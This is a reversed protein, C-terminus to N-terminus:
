RIAWGTKLDFFQLHETAIAVEAADGLRVPAHADFRATVVALDPAADPSAEPDLTWAEDLEVQVLQEAGLLEAALAVLEGEPLLTHGEEAAQGLAHLVGAQLREPADAAIGVAQAIKDATKFGIGWVERALRYPEQAIM